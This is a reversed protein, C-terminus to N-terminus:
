QNHHHWIYLIQKIDNLKLLDGMASYSCCSTRFEELFLLFTVWQWSGTFYVASHWWFIKLTFRGCKVEPSCRVEPAVIDERLRSCDDPIFYNIMGQSVGAIDVRILINHKVPIYESYRLWSRFKYDFNYWWTDSCAVNRLDVARRANSIHPNGEVFSLL